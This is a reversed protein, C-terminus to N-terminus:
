NQSNAYIPNSGSATPTFASSIFYIIAVGIRSCNKLYNKLKWPHSEKEM